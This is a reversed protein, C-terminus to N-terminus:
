EHQSGKVFCSCVSKGPFDFLPFNETRLNHTKLYFPLDQFHCQRLLVAMSDFRRWVCYYVRSDWPTWRKYKCYYMVVTANMRLRWTNHKTRSLYNLRYYLWYIQKIWSLYDTRFYLWTHINPEHCTTSDTLIKTLWYIQKTWSLYNLRYHLIVLIHTKNM